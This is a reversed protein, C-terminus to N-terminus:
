NLLTRQKAMSSAQIELSQMVPCKSPKRFTRMYAVFMIRKKYKEIQVDRIEFSFLKEKINSNRLLHIEVTMSFVSVSTETSKWSSYKHSM